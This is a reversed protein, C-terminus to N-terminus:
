ICMRNKDNGLETRDRSQPTTYLPTLINCKDPLVSIFFLNDIFHLWMM